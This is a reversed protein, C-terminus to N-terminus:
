VQRQQLMPAPRTAFTPRGPVSAVMVATDQGAAATHVATDQVAAAM